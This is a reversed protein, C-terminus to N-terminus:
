MLYSTKVEIVDITKDKIEQGSVNDRLAVEIAYKGIPINASQASTITWAAVGTQNDVDISNWILIAQLPMPREANCDRHFSTRKSNAPVLAARVQFNRLDEGDLDSASLAFAM